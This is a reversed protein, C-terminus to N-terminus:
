RGRGRRAVPAASIPWELLCLRVKDDSTIAM